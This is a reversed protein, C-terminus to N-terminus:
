DEILGVDTFNGETSQLQDVAYIFAGADVFVKEEFRQGRNMNKVM